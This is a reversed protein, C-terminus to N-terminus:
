SQSEAPQAVTTHSLEETGASRGRQLFAELLGAAEGESGPMLHSYLDLTIAINAHGMFVQLAKANVGAAIMFSAYTHRAEHLTISDLKAATWTRRARKMAGAVWSQSRFVRVAGPATSMRHELLVDRLPAPVPVKRRGERSKPEIEGELHDWGRRVHIVGAALDVDEWRLATLEARRLAAYMATAWLARDAGTLADLLREAQEPGTVYRIHRRIAPM